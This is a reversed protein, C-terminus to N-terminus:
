QPWAAFAGWNLCRFWTAARVFGADRLRELHIAESDIRMVNELADRKQAIELDSYGNARKFRLHLDQFYGDSALKESLVLVGSDALAARIRRLLPLRDQRPLFQLTYNLVVVAANELPVDRVDAQVWRVREDGGTKAHIAKAKRLMAASNDVAVIECPMDAVARLVAYTAAGLSCGLDYCRGGAPLHQAAILGTLPAVVEYGPVSRRIMDPFVQAVRDDFVFDVLDKGRGPGAGRGKAFLQDRETTTKDANVIPM